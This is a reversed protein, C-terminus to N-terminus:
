AAVTRELISALTTNTLFDRVHRDFGSWLLDTVMRCSSHDDIYDPLNLNLFDQMEIAEIIDYLCIEEPLRALRYGGRRGRISEIIGRNRLKSFLHALYNLSIDEDEAIETLSIYRGDGHLALYSLARVSYTIKTSLIM